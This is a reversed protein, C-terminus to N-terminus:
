YARTYAVGDVLAAVALFLALALLYPPYLRWLRRRWFPIFDITAARGAARAKTWHLHICFGSIVFFLFVSTYGYHVLVRALMALWRLLRGWEDRPAQTVAHYAVVYLAALGRLADLGRLRHGGGISLM